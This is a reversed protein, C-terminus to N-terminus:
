WPGSRPTLTFSHGRVAEMEEKHSQYADQFLKNILGRKEAETAHATKLVQMLTHAWVLNQQPVPLHLKELQELTRIRNWDVGKIEHAGFINVSPAFRREMLEQFRAHAANPNKAEELSRMMNYVFTQAAEPGLDQFRQHGAVDRFFEMTGSAVKGLLVHPNDHRSFGYRRNNRFARELFEMTNLGEPERRGGYPEPERGGYAEPVRGGYAESERGGYAGTERGGYAAPEPRAPQAPQETREDRLAEEMLENAEKVERIADVLAHGFRQPDARIYKETTQRRIFSRKSRRFINLFAQGFGRTYHPEVIADVLNARVPNPNGGVGFVHMPRPTGVLHPAYPNTVDKDEVVKKLIDGRRAFATALKGAQEKTYGAGMFSQRLLEDTFTGARSRITIGLMHRIDEAAQKQMAPRDGKLRVGETVLPFRERDVKVRRTGLREGTREIVKARFFPQMPRAM